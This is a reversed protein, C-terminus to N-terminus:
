KKLFYNLKEQLYILQLCLSFFFFMFFEDSIKLGM